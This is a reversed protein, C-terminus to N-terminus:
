KSFEKADFSTRWAYFISNKEFQVWLQIKKQLFTKNKSIKQISYFAQFGCPMNKEDLINRWLKSFIPHVTGSIHRESALFDCNWSIQRVLRRLKCSFIQLLKKLDSVVNKFLWSELTNQSIRFRCSYKFNFSRNHSKM